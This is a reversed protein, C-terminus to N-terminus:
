LSILEKNKKLLAPGIGKVNTLDELSTFAGHQARYDVIRAAISAGIGNLTSLEQVTATNINIKGTEVTQGSMSARGSTDIVRAYPIVLVMQDKLPLTLNIASLDAGESVGGAEIIADMVRLSDNLKYVGPHLIAGSIQVIVSRSDITTSSIASVPENALSVSTWEIDAPRFYADYLTYSVGIAIIVTAIFISKRKESDLAM